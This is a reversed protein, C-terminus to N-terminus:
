SEGHQQEMNRWQPDGPKTFSATSRSHLTHQLAFLTFMKDDLSESDQLNTPHYVYIYTQDEHFSSSPPM